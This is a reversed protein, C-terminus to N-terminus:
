PRFIAVAIAGTAREVRVRYEVGPSLTPEQGGLPIFAPDSSAHRRPSTIRDTAGASLGWIVVGPAATRVVTITSVPGGNWSYEPQLGSGAVVTFTDDLLGDSCSGLLAALALPLLPRALRRM